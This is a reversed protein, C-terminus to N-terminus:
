IARSALVGSKVAGEITSPLSTNTWDGALVLKGYKSNLLKRSIIVNSEPIFTARKEKIIMYDIIIERKFFSFYKELEEVFEAYMEEKTLNILNDAASTILSIHKAHNFAWHIKSDIMGYFKETFPNQNLWMHCTVISSYKLSPLIDDLNIEALLNKVNFPSAALIVYDFNNWEGKDTIVSTIENSSDTGLSLVKTSLFIEGGSNIIYKQANSCYLESLGTKPLVITSAKNGSLFMKKLIYIFSAASSEDLACNLTGVHLIEWFAKITNSSQKHEELFKGSTIDSYKEPEITLLGSFLMAVKIRESFSLAKYTLIAKLLNFPYPLNSADLRYEKGSSGVFTVALSKQFDLLDLSGIKNLFELTYNYCGMMIHQGNDVIDNQKDYLFSYARGGLKPSAELLQVSHGISILNVAASLGAFGGGIVLCKAM